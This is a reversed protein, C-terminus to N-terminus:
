NAMPTRWTGAEKMKSISKIYRDSLYDASKVLGNLEKFEELTMLGDELCDEIDGSLEEM